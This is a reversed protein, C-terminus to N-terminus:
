VVVTYLVINNDHHYQYAALRPARPVNTSSHYRSTWLYRMDNNTISTATIINHVVTSRAYKRTVATSHHPGAPPADLKRFAKACRFALTKFKSAFECCTFGTQIGVEWGNTKKYKTFLIGCFLIRKFLSLSCAEQPVGDAAWSYSVVSSPHM